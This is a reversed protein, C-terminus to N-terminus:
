FTQAVYDALKRSNWYKEHVGPFIDGIDIYRDEVVPESDVTEYLFALPYSIIDDQDWFNVWRPNSLGDKQRLGLTEPHLKEGKMIKALLSDARFALPILPSGMTYFRRIRVRGQKVLRRVISMMEVDEGEKERFLHYLLDHAIITGASHAFITLSVAKHEKDRENIKYCLENFIDERISTEGDNSVYYFIDSFGRILIERVIQHAKRTPSLTIDRRGRSAGSVQEGLLRQATALYRHMNFEDERYEYLGWGWEVEISAEAFPRKGHKMLAQDIIHRLEGYQKEHSGPQRATTIGHIFVPIEVWQQETM